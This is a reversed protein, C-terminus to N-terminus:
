RTETSHSAVPLLPKRFYVVRQSEEFGLARHMQHSAANDVSADSAFESCGHGRAWVEAVNVLARAVGQRRRDAVVYIGELFAVPSTSTGNVHDHRLAIEILGVPLACDDYAVYQAFRKPEALFSAMEALHEEPGDHPWLAMRLARWGSTDTTRCPEIM